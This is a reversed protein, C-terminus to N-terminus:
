ICLLIFAIDFISKEGGRERTSSSGEGLLVQRRGMHAKSNASSSARRDIDPL